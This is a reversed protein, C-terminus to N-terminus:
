CKRLGSDVSTGQTCTRDALFKSSLLVDLCSYSMPTLKCSCVQGMQEEVDRAYARLRSMASEIQERLLTEGQKMRVDVQSLMQSVQTNHAAIKADLGKEAALQRSISEKLTREVTMFRALFAEKDNAQLHSAISCPSMSCCLIGPCHMAAASQM